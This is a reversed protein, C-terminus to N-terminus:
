SKRDTVFLCATKVHHEFDVEAFDTTDIPITTGGVTFPDLNHCWRNFDAYTIESHMKNAQGRESSQEREMFRRYLVHTDGTFRFTLPQCNYRDILAKIAGAEDVKKVGAPAFNGEIIIPCGTEILRETVYLMADFTVASFLSSEERNSITIGRCLAIKFTDKILYPIHITKSLKLAFTSKGSALYGEVIILKSRM